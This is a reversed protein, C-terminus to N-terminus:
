APVICANPVRLPMGLRISDSFRGAQGAYEKDIVVGIRSRKVEKVTGTAGDLAKPSIGTLKVRDGPKLSAVVRKSALRRRQDLAEAIPLLDDDLEGRVIAAIVDNASTM